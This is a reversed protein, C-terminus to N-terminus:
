GHHTKGISFYEMDSKGMTQRGGFTKNQIDLNLLGLGGQQKPRCNKECAVLASGRAQVDDTKNRWLCHRM